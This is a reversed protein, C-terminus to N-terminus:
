TKQQMQQSLNLNLKELRSLRESLVESRELNQALQTRTVELMHEKNFLENETSKLKENQVSATESVETIQLSLHSVKEKLGYIERQDEEHIRKFKILENEFYNKFEVSKKLRSAENQADTALYELRIIEKSFSHIQEEYSAITGTKDKEMSAIKAKLMAVDDAHAQQEQRLNFILEQNNKESLSLDKKTKALTDKLQNIYPKIVNQIKLHFKTFRKLDFNQTENIQKLSKNKESMLAHAQALDSNEFELLSMKDVFLKNKEALNQMEFFFKNKEEILKNNETEFLLLRRNNLKLKNQLEEMEKQIENLVLSQQILNTSTPERHQTPASDLMDLHGIEFDM